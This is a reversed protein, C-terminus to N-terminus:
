RLGMAHYTQAAYVLLIAPTVMSIPLAYLWRHKSLSSLALLLLLPTLTRGFGYPEAWLDPRSFSAALLGFGYLALDIQGVRRLAANRAILVLALLIGGLALYDTLTLAISVPRWLPYPTPHLVRIVFGSFPILNPTQFHIAPFHLAVYSHWIVAPLAATGTVLSRRYESRGMLWLFQAALLILGTERALAAAALVLWVAASRQTVSYWAWAICLAALSVDIVMRDLSILVAPVLLFAVGFLPNHGFHAAYLALWWTGLGTFLLIVAFYCTDVRRDAGLAILNAMAPVLIRGYRTSPADIYTYFGRKLLPDHAVFHYFQGDYGSSNAFHYVHETALSPPTPLRDGSCFLATWNGKFNETVDFAQWAFALTLACTVAVGAYSNRNL